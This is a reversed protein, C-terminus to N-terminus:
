CIVCIEQLMSILLIHAAAVLIHSVLVFVMIGTSSLKLSIASLVIIAITLLLSGFFAFEYFDVFYSLICILNLFALVIATKGFRVAQKYRILTM